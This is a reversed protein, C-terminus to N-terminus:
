AQIGRPNIPGPQYEVHIHPAIGDGWELIVDFDDTLAEAIDEVVLEAVEMTDLDKARIDFACGSYHLSNYSHKGEVVSTIFCDDGYIAMVDSVVVMAIVLEPRVGSISVGRKLSIM